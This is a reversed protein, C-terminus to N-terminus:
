CRTLSNGFNSSIELLMKSTRYGPASFEFVAIKSKVGTPYKVSKLPEVMKITFDVGPNSSKFLKVAKREAQANTM